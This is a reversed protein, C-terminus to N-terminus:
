LPILCSLDLAYKLIKTMISQVETATFLGTKSLIKAGCYPNSRIGGSVVRVRWIKEVWEMLNGEFPPRLQIKGPRVHELVHATHCILLNITSM